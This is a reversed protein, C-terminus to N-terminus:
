YVIKVARGGDGLMNYAVSGDGAYRIGWGGYKKWDYAVAECREIARVAIKPGFLGYQVYVVDRSVSVRRGAFPGWAALLFLGALVPVTIPGRGAFVTGFTVLLPLLMLLHFGLPARTKDHYLADSGMYKAQYADAGASGADREQRKGQADREVQEDREGRSTEMERPWGM